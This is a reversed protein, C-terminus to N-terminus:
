LHDMELDDCSLDFQSLADELYDALLPMGILYSATRKNHAEAASNRLDDWSELSDDGRGLWALAVLDIQEDENLSRIVSSLEQVVPDDSTDELVSWANDDAANSAPDPDTGAEKADFQRMKMIIFCVKEPSITLEPIEAM